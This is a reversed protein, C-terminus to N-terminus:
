AEAVLLSARPDRRLNRTHEALESLLLVPAGASAACAVLSAYPQGDPLLTALAGHRAACLLTEADPMGSSIAHTYGQGTVPSPPLPPSPSTSTVSMSASRAIVGSCRSRSFSRIIRVM